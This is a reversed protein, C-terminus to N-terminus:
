CERTGFGYPSGLDNVYGKKIGNDLLNNLIEEQKKVDEFTIFGTDTYEYEAYREELLNIAEKLEVLSQKSM